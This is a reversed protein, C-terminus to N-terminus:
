SIKEEQTRRHFTETEWPKLNRPDDPPPTPVKKTGPPKWEEPDDNFREANFWTAAHPIFQSEQWSIATGFERVKELLMAPDHKQMARLIANIAPKHAIRRPYSKYIEEAKATLISKLPRAPTELCILYPPSSDNEETAEKQPKMPAKDGGRPKGEDTQHGVGEGAPPEPTDNQPTPASDPLRGGMTVFYRNSTLDGAADFQQNWVIEGGAQLIKLHKRVTSKGLGSELAISAHSLWCEGSDNARDTLVFMIARAPGKISDRGRLIKLLHNSM